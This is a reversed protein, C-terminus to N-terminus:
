GCLDEALNNPGNFRDLYAYYRQKLDPQSALLANLEDTNQPANLTDADAEFEFYSQHSAGEERAEPYGQWESVFARWRNLEAWAVIYPDEEAGSGSVVAAEGGLFRPEGAETTLTLSAGPLTLMLSPGKQLASVRVTEGPRLCGKARTISWPDWERIEFPEGEPRFSTPARLEIYQTEGGVDTAVACATAIAACSLLTVSSRLLAGLNAM